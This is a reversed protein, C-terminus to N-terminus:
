LGPQNGLTLRLEIEEDDRQITLSVRDGPLYDELLTKLEEVTKVEVGDFALIVDNARIDADSAPSDDSVSTVLVGRVEDNLGLEDRTRIDLNRVSTGLWPKGAVARNIEAGNRATEGSREAASPRAALTVDFSIERGGRIAKLTITEGVSTNSALYAIIDDMGSVPEGNIKTIVDGDVFVKSNESFPESGGHIGAKEAPSGKIVQQILAGRQDRDFGLSESLERNLAIGSFGIWPHEYSGTAILSPIVRKALNAPIAYGIGASAYTTSSFSNVVGIVEGDLNILVGGSNGPNIAADTQIMDPIQYHGSSTSGDELDFSRGLASVIGTTITGTNGFPNGIAAVFEGVEIANSDGMRVPTLGTEYDEVELVALDSDPDEGVVVADRVIGDHYTVTVEVANEIVHYNTVIHGEDDWVFGTGSGYTYREKEPESRQYDQEPTNFYQRFFPILEQFQEMDLGNSSDATSKVAIYVVSPNIQNYLRGLETSAELIEERASTSDAFVAATPVSGAALVFAFILSFVVYIKKMIEKEKCQIQDETIAGM